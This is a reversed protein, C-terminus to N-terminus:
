MPLSNAHIIKSITFNYDYYMFNRSTKGKFMSGGKNREESEERGASSMEIQTREIVWDVAQDFALHSFNNWLGSNTPMLDVTKVRM